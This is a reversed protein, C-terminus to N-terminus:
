SWGCNTMYASPKAGSPKRDYGITVTSMSINGNTGKGFRITTNGFAPLSGILQPSFLTVNKPFNAFNLRWPATQSTQNRIIIMYEYDTGGLGVQYVSDIFLRGQCATAAQAPTASMTAAAVGLVSAAACLLAASKRM